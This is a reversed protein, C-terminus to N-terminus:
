KVMCAARAATAPLPLLRRQEVACVRRRTTRQLRRCPPNTPCPSCSRCPGVKRDRCEIEICTSSGGVSDDVHLRVAAAELNDDACSTVFRRRGACRCAVDSRQRAGRRARAVRRAICHSADAQFPPSCPSHPPPPAAGDARPELFCDARPEISCNLGACEGSQRTQQQCLCHSPPLGDPGNNLAAPTHETIHVSCTTGDRGCCSDMISSAVSQKREASGLEQQSDVVLFSMDSADHSEASCHSVPESIGASHQQSATTAPAHQQHRQM